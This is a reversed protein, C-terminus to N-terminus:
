TCSDEPDLSNFFIFEKLDKNLRSCRMPWKRFQVCNQLLQVNQLVVCVTNISQLSKTANLQSLSSEKKFKLCNQDVDFGVFPRSRM